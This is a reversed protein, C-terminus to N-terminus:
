VVPLIRVASQNDACAPFCTGDYEKCKIRKICSFSDKLRM